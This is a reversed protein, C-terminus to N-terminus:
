PVKLPTVPVAGAEEIAAACSPCIPRTAGVELLRLGYQQTFNVIDAEAHGLGPALTEGSKLLVGPRLYGRPESTGILMRQAGSADEALGVGMTIRGQQASPLAARLEAVRAATGGLETAGPRVGAGAASDLVSGMMLISLVSALVANQVGKLRAAREFSQALVHRLRMGGAERSPILEDLFSWSVTCAPLSTCVLGLAQDALPGGTASVQTELQGFLTRARADGRQSDAYVQELHASRHVLLVDSGKARLRGQEDCYLSYDFPPAVDQRLQELTVAEDEDCSSGALVLSLGALVLLRVWSHM